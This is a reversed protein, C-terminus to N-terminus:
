KGKSKTVEPVGAPETIQERVDKPKMGAAEGIAANATAARQEVVTQNSRLGFQSLALSLAAFAEVYKEQSALTAASGILGVVGLLTKFNSAWGFLKSM